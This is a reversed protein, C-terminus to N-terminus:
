GLGIPYYRVFLWEAIGLQRVQPLSVPMQIKRFPNPAPVLLREGEGKTNLYKRTNGVIFVTRCKAPAIRAEVATCRRHRRCHPPLASRGGTHSAVGTSWSRSVLVVVRCCSYRSGYGQASGVVVVVCPHPAGGVCTTVGMCGWHRSPSGGPSSLACRRAVVEM